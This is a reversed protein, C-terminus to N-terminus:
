EKIKLVRNGLKKLKSSDSIDYLSGYWDSTNGSLIMLKVQKLRKAIVGGIDKGKDPLWAGGMCVGNFGGRRTYYIEPGYSLKGRKINVLAGVKTDPFHYGYDDGGSNKIIGFEPINLYVYYNEDRKEFGFEGEDYKEKGKMALLETEQTRVLDIIKNRSFERLADVRVKKGLEFLFKSELGGVVTVKNGVVIESLNEMYEKDVDHTDTVEQREGTLKTFEVRFKGDERYKKIVGESGEKTYNYTNAGANMRIKDGVEFDTKPEKKPEEGKVLSFKKGDVQVHKKYSETGAVLDYVVGKVIAVNRGDLARGLLSTETYLKPKTHGLLALLKYIKKTPEKGEEKIQKILGKVEIEVKDAIKELRQTVKPKKQLDVVAERTKELGLLESVKDRYHTDQLYPFVQKFILQPTDLGRELGRLVNLDRQVEKIYDKGIKEIGQQARDLALAELSNFDGIEVLNRRKFGLVWKIGYHDQDKTVKEKGLSYVKKDVLFVPTQEAIEFVPHKPLDQIGPLLKKLKATQFTSSLELEYERVCWSDSKDSEWVQYTGGFGKVKIELNELGHRFYKTNKSDASKFKVKDGEGFKM